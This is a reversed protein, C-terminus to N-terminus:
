TDLPVVGLRGVVLVPELLVDLAGDLLDVIFPHLFFSPRPRRSSLLPSSLPHCSIDPHILLGPTAPATRCDGGNSVSENM